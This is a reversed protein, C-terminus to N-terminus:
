CSRLWAASWVAAWRSPPLRLAACHLVACCPRRQQRRTRRLAHRPAAGPVPWSAERERGEGVEGREAGGSSHLEIVPLSGGRVERERLGACDEWFGVVEPESALPATVKLLGCRMSPTLDPRRMEEYLLARAQLLLAPAPGPAPRSLTAAHRHM